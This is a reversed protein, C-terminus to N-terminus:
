KRVCAPCGSSPRNSRGSPPPTKLKPEAQDFVLNSIQVDAVRPLIDLQITEPGTDVPDFTAKFEAFSCPM